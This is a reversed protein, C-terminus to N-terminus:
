FEVSTIRPPCSRWLPSSPRASAPADCSTPLSRQKSASCIRQLDWKMIRFHTQTSCSPSLFAPSLNGCSSRGPRAEPAAVRKKGVGENPGQPTARLAPFAGNNSKRAYASARERDWDREYPHTRGCRRGVEAAKSPHPQADVGIADSRTTQEETEHNCKRVECRNDVNPGKAM